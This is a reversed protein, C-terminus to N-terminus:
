PAPHLMGLALVFIAVVLMGLIWWVVTPVSESRRRSDWQSM